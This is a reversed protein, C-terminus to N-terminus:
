STRRRSSPWTCRGATASSATACRRSRATRTWGSASTASSRSAPRTATCRRWSTGMGEAPDRPHLRAGDGPLDRARPRLGRSRDARLRESAPASRHRDRLRSRLPSRQSMSAMRALRQGLWWVAVQCYPAGRRRASADTENGSSDSGRCPATRDPRRASGGTSFRTSSARGTTRSCPLNLNLVENLQSMSSRTMRAHDHRGARLPDRRSTTRRTPRIGSFIATAREHTATSCTSAAARAWRSLRRAPEPLQAARDPYRSQCRWHEIKM